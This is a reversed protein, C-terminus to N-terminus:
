AVLTRYLQVVKERLRDIDSDNQITIDARRVKESLPLQSHIRRLAEERTAGDRARIRAICVEEPAAVAVTSTIEPPIGAEFLLPVDYM